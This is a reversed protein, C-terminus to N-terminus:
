SLVDAQGNSTLPYCDGGSVMGMIRDLHANVADRTQHPKREAVSRAIRHYEALMAFRLLDNDLLGHRLQWMPKHQQWLCEFVIALARNGSPQAITQGFKRELGFRHTALAGGHEMRLYSNSIAQISDNSAFRAALAALEPEVLRRAGLIEHLNPDLPARLDQSNARSLYIGSSARIEIDGALQLSLLAERVSTRSVHLRSVLERESPLRDGPAIAM